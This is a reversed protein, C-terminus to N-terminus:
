REAAIAVACGGLLAIVPVATIQIAAGCVAKELPPAAPVRDDLTGEAFLALGGHVIGGEGVATACVTTKDQLEAAVADNIKAFLTIRSCAIGIGGVTGTSGM